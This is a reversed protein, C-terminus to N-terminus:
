ASDAWWTLNSQPLDGDMWTVTVTDKPRCTGQGVCVVANACVVGDFRRNASLLRRACACVCSLWGAQARESARVSIPSVILVCVDVLSGAKAKAYYAFGCVVMYDM